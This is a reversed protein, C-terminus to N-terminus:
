RQAQLTLAAPKATEPATQEPWFYNWALYSGGGMIALQLPWHALWLVFLTAGTGAGAGAGAVAGVGVIAATAGGAILAASESINNRELTEVWSNPLVGVRSGHIHGAPAALEAGTSPTTTAPANGAAAAPGHWAILALLVTIVGLVRM